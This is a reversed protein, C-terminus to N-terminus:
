EEPKLNSSFLSTNKISIHFIRICQSYTFYDPWPALFFNGLFFTTWPFPSQYQGDKDGYKCGQEKVKVMYKFGCEDPCYGEQQEDGTDNKGLYVCLKLAKCLTKATYNGIGQGPDQQGKSVVKNEPWTGEKEFPTFRVVKGM